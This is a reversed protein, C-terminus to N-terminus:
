QGHERLFARGREAFSRWFVRAREAGDQIGEVDALAARICREAPSQKEVPRVPTRQLQLRDAQELVKRMLIEGVVDRVQQTTEATRELDAVRRTLRNTTGM